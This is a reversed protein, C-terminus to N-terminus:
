EVWWVIQIAVSECLIEIGRDGLLNNDHSYIEIKPSSKNEEMIISFPLLIDWCLIKCYSFEEGKTLCVHRGFLCSSKKRKYM